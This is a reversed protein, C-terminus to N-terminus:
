NLEWCGCPPECGETIPHVARKQHIQLCCCHISMFVFYINFFLYFLPMILNVTFEWRDTVSSGSDPSGAFCLVQAM